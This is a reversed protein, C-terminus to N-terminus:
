DDATRSVTPSPLLVLEELQESADRQLRDVRHSYLDMTVGWSSHGLLQQVVKPHLGADLALTACSHRADHLRIVPVNAKLALAQFLERLRDPHFAEGDARVFVLSGPDLDKACGGQEQVRRTRLNTLAELLVPGLDLTRRSTGKPEKTIVRWEADTTRQSTIGVTRARLDVDGWRLGALEGRRLGCLLALLWAAFLRDDAAVVLFAAVQERHWVQLDARVAKPLPVNTAPNRGIVGDRVADSLAKALVRHVTRVTTASLPRGNRGGRALLNRYTKVLHDARLSSLKHDALHPLLYCRILIRYNSQATAALSPSVADLWRQLYQEVTLKAPLIAHGSDATAQFARLAQEADKKTAFGGKTHQRRKQPGDGPVDAVFTWSGHSRPCTLRRGSADRQTACSCRKYVHGSM